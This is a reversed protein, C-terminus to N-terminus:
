VMYENTLSRFAPGPNAKTMSDSLNGVSRMFCLEVIGCAIAERVKHYHIAVHKKKLDNGVCSELVSMSDTFLLTPEEVLIGFSRLAYRLEIVKEVAMRLAAFEASFTSTEVVNQRKTVWCIPTSGFFLLVGTVSKRGQTDPGHSADVYGWLRAGEVPDPENDSRQECAGAYLGLPDDFRAVNVGELDPNICDIPIGRTSTKKLYGAVRLAREYHGERPASAFWSLCTVAFKVDPRSTNSIWQLKGLLQQYETRGENGLLPTEDQEPRDGHMMPTSWKKVDGRRKEITAIMERIYTKMSIKMYDRETEYDQGLLTDVDGVEKLKYERKLENIYSDPDDCIFLLDDVYCAIVDYSYSGDEYEVLKLWIGDDGESRWFGLRTLSEGLKMAWQYASTKLGYLAKSLVLWMGESDGFEKGCRATVKEETLANLYATVVDAKKTKKRHRRGNTVLIRINVLRVVPGYTALPGADVRDGGIVYRAKRRGSSKVDFIMRLYTVQHGEPPRDRMLFVGNESMSNLEADIAKNWLDNGNQEDLSLAEEVNRPVVVGFKTRGMQRNGAARRVKLTRVAWRYLKPEATGMNTTIYAAVTVPDDRRLDKLQEWSETNDTWKVEIWLKSGEWKHSKLMDIGVYEDGGADLADLVEQYTMEERDGDHYEISYWDHEADYDAVRGRFTQKGFRKAVSKGVVDDRVATTDKGHDGHPQDAAQKTEELTGVVNRNTDEDKDELIRYRSGDDRRTRVFNITKTGGVYGIGQSTDEPEVAAMLNYDANEDIATKFHSDAHNYAAEHEKVEEETAIRVVSRILVQLTDVDLVYFTLADGASECIGLWRAPVERPDPFSSEVLMMIKAYFECIFASRDPSEGKLKAYPSVEYGSAATPIMELQKESHQWAYDWFATPVQCNALLRTVLRKMIGIRNEARNQWPSHPETSTMTIAYRKCTSSWEGKTEALANDTVIQKPAGIENIFKNLAEPAQSESKMMYTKNFDANRLYFIQGCVFGRTSPSSAFFTDSYAIDDLRKVRLSPFRSRKHRRPPRRSEMTALETTHRLFAKVRDRDTNNLLRAWRSIDVELLPRTIIARRMAITVFDEGGTAAPDWPHESTLTVTRFMETCDESCRRIGMAAAAGVKILPIVTGDAAEILQEGGDCELRDEVRVGNNRLQHPCLLSETIDEVWAAEHVVVIVPEGSLSTARTMASVIENSSTTGGVGEISTSTPRTRLKTWGTAESLICQDCGSDIVAYNDSLIGAQLRTRRAKRRGMTVKVENKEEDSKEGDGEGVNETERDRRRQFNRKREGYHKQDGHRRQEGYHKQWPKRKKERVRRSRLQRREVGTGATNIRTERSRIASIVEALSRGDTMMLELHNVTNTYMDDHSLATILADIIANESLPEEIEELDLAIEEVISTLETATISPTLKLGQLKRRLASANAQRRDPGDYYSRMDRWVLYGDCSKQHRKIHVRATGGGCAAKLLYYVQRKRDDEVNEGTLVSDLGAQGVASEFDNKFRIWRLPDGSFSPIKPTPLKSKPVSEGAAALAGPTAREDAATYEMVIAMFDEATFTEDTTNDLRGSVWARKFMLLRGAKVPPFTDSVQEQTLFLLDNRTEVGLNNLRETDANATLGLVDRIRDLTIETSAIAEM